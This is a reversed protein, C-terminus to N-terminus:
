FIFDNRQILVYITWEDGPSKSCGIM